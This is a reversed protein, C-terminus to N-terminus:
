EYPDRPAWGSDGDEEDDDPGRYRKLGREYGGIVSFRARLTDM